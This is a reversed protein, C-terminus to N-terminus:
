WHPTPGGFPLELLSAGLGSVDRLLWDESVALVAAPPRFVLWIWRGDAEGVLVSRDFENGVDPLPVQWLSSTVTGVRFRATPPALTLASGPDDHALGAVRAGLGTGAEESIVLVDIPGDVDSVGSTCTLTAVPHDGPAALVVGFDTVAWGPSIPWPLYTPFSGAAALHETFTDYSASAPRWWVSGAGHQPCSGAGIRESCRPCAAELAM